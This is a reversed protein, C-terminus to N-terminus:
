ISLDNAVASTKPRVMSKKFSDVGQKGIAREQLVDTEDSYTGLLKDLLMNSFGYNVRFRAHHVAHSTASGSHVTRSMFRGLASAEVNSHGHLSILFHYTYYAAIGTLTVPMFWSVAAMFGLWAATYFICKEIWSMSISSLPTVVQTLHHSRHWSYLLNSQHMLRHTFYYWVEVWVYFVAFTLAGAAFTDAAFHIAGFGVLAYLLLADSFVHWSSKIERWRQGEAPPMRFVQHARLGPTRTAVEWIVGLALKGFALWAVVLVLSTSWVVPSWLHLLGQVGNQALVKNVIDEATLAFRAIEQVM